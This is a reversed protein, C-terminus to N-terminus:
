YLYALMVVFKGADYFAYLKNYVKGMRAADLQGNRKFEM